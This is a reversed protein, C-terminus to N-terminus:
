KKKFTQIAFHLRVLTRLTPVIRMEQMQLHRREESAGVSCRLRPLVPVPAVVPDPPRHDRQRDPVYEEPQRDCALDARPADRM